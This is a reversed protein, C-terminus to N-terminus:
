ADSTRAFIWAYWVQAEVDFYVIPSTVQVFM